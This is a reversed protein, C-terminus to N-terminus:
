KVNNKVAKIGCFYLRLTVLIFLSVELGISYIKILNNSKYRLYWIIDLLEFITDYICDSYVGKSESTQCIFRTHQFIYFKNQKKPSVKLTDSYVGM